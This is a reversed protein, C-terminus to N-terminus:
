GSSPFSPRSALEARLRQGIEAMDAEPIDLYGHTEHMLAAYQQEEYPVGPPLPAVHWHVHANGDNSGLSLVYLRETPVAAEIAKAIAHIRSHLALYEDPTFDSIVATRHELPAVLTYGVLTPWKALFAIAVDDRHVVAHDDREGAVIECIFCDQTRTRELYADIDLPKRPYTV